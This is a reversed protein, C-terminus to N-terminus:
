PTTANATPRVIRGPLAGTTRGDVVIPVGNVITALLGKPQSRWRGEGNPFDHVFEKKDPAITDPDFVMLDATFGPRLQGRDSFGCLSAPIQTMLRVAEELTWAGWQRVWRDFFWSSWESGDDRDLHAGGDSVGVVMHPDGAAARTGVRWAENETSWVWETELDESLALDLMADCPAVSREAALDAVSRGVLPAHEPRAVRSVLLVHWNPPPLTPGLTADRNPHEVAWRVADRFGPDRLLAMREPVTRTEKFMRDFTFVGEYLTTGAALTFTRNFPKAMLMSHVAAGRATAEDVFKKAEDWSATPADIKSRAGLGQIVVPMRALLSLRILEEKDGDDLGGISSFPLYAITGANARGAAAVLAELEEMSAARSPVPRDLSDWHTPAHSSSFGAAGAAMGDTVIAEMEGIEDPKAERWCDDGMVWRRVASHGIYCAMNVGLRGELAGLFEPFTEFDWRVGALAQPSMGEVRAFMQTIFERDATRTPAISFGCNGAVVTTVGHFCSSTAYPEFTLQPDYHTHVDVIGPAVCRGDADIVQDADSVDLFGTVAIRGDKVGVDARRRPLGTGDVVIGGVVALDFRAM